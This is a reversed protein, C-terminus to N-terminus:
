LQEPVFSYQGEFQIPLLFFSPFLLLTLYTLLNYDTTSPFNHLSYASSPASTHSFLFTRLQLQSQHIYQAAQLKRPGM